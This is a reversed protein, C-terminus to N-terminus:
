HASNVPHSKDVPAGTNKPANEAEAVTHDSQVPQEGEHAEGETPIPARLTRGIFWFAAVFVIVWFLIIALIAVLPGLSM